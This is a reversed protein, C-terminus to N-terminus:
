SKDEKVPQAVYTKLVRIKVGQAVELTVYKDTLGEITGFIGSNTLVRDGRKLKTIFDQHTKQKKVQPRMVLFYFIFFMILFPMLQMVMSPGDTAQQAWAPSSFVLAILTSILPRM